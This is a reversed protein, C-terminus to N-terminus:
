TTLSVPYMATILPDGADDDLSAEIKTVSTGFSSGVVTMVSPNALGIVPGDETLTWKTALTSDLFHEELAQGEMIPNRHLHIQGGRRLMSGDLDRVQNKAEILGLRGKLSSHGFNAIGSFYPWLNLNHEQGAEPM